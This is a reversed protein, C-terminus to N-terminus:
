FLSVQKWDKVVKITGTLHQSLIHNVAMNNFDGDAGSIMHDGDEDLNLSSSNFVPKDDDCASDLMVGCSVFESDPCVNEKSKVPSAIM